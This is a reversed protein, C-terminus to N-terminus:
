VHVGSSWTQGHVWYPKGANKTPRADGMLVDRHHRCKVGVPDDKNELLGYAYEVVVDDEFRLLETIKETVWQKLVSINVKRLDVKGDIYSRVYQPFSEMGEALLPGPIKHKQHIDSGQRQLAAILGLKGRLSSKSYGTGRRYGESRKDAGEQPKLM